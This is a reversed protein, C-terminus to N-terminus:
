PAAERFLLRIRQEEERMADLDFDVHKRISDEVLSRLLDPPLADIEWGKRLGYKKIYRPARPDDMKIPVSPLDLERIQRETLAVREIEAVNLFQSSELSLDMWLGSPDFDGFYLIKVNDSWAHQCGISLFGTTVRVPVRYQDAVEFIIQSVADKESWIQIPVESDRWYNLKFSHSCIELLEERSNWTNFGYSSRSRDEILDLSILGLERGVSCSYRIQRYNIGEPVLQYFIQRVTMKGFKALLGNVKEILAVTNKGLGRGMSLCM